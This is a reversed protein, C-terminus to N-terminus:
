LFLMWLLFLFCLAFFWWRIVGFWINKSGFKAFKADKGNYVINSGDNLSKKILSAKTLFTCIPDTYDDILEIQFLPDGSAISKNLTKELVSHSLRKVGIGFKCNINTKNKGLSDYPFRQLRFPM